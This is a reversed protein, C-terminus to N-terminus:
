QFGQPRRWLNPSPSVESGYGMLACCAPDRLRGLYRPLGIKAGVARRTQRGQKNTSWDHSVILRNPICGMPLFVMIASSGPWIDTLVGASTSRYKARIMAEVRRECSRIPPGLWVPM